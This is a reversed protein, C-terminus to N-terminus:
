MESWRYPLSPDDPPLRVEDIKPWNFASDNMHLLVSAEEGCARLAHWVGAAVAVLRPENADLMVEVPKSGEVAPNWLVLLTRGRLAMVQDIQSGHKYWGKIVGPYTTTQYIQQVPFSFSDDGRWIEQLAGRPNEVVHVRAELAGPMPQSIWGENRLGAILVPRAAALMRRHHARIEIEDLKYRAGYNASIDGAKMRAGLEASRRVLYDEGLYKYHLLDFLPRNPLLVEGHPEAVHRGPGYNIERVAVPNFM